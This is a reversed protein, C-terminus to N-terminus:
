FSIGLYIASYFVNTGVALRAHPCDSHGIADPPRSLVSSRKPGCLGVRILPIRIANFMHIFRSIHRNCDLMINTPTLITRSGNTTINYRTNCIKQNIRYCPSTIQFVTISAQFVYVPLYLLFPLIHSTSPQLHWVYQRIQASHIMFYLGNQTLSWIFSGRVNMSTLFYRSVIALEALRKM